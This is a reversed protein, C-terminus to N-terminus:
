TALHAAADAIIGLVILLLGHRQLERDRKRDASRRSEEDSLKRELHKEAEVQADGLASFRQEFHKTATSLVLIQQHLWVVRGELDLGDPMQEPTTPTETPRTQTTPEGPDVRRSLFAEVALRGLRGFTKVASGMLEGGVSFLLIALGVLQAMAAGSTLGWKLGTEFTSLEGAVIGTAAALVAVAAAPVLGSVDTVMWYVGLLIFFALGPVADLAEKWSSPTSRNDEQQQADGGTSAQEASSPEEAPVQDGTTM